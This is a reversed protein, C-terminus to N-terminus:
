LKFRRQASLGETGRLSSRTSSSAVRGSIAAIIKGGEAEEKKRKEILSRFLLARLFILIQLGLNLLRIRFM